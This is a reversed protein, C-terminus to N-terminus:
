FMVNFVTLHETMMDHKNTREYCSYFIRWDYESEDNSPTIRENDTDNDDSPSGDDECLVEHRMQDCYSFNGDM